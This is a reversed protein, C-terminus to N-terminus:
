WFAGYPSLCLAHKATLPTKKWINEISLLPKPAALAGQVGQM